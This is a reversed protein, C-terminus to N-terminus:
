CIIMPEATYEKDDYEVADTIDAEPLVEPVNERNPNKVRYERRVYSNGGNKKGFELVKQHKNQNSEEVPPVKDEIGTKAISLWSKEVQNKSEEHIAGPLYWGVSIPQYTNMGWIEHEIIEKILKAQESTAKRLNLLAVGQHTGRVRSSDPYEFELAQKPLNTYYAVTRSIAILVRQVEVLSLSPPLTIRLKLFPKDKIESPLDALHLPTINFENSLAGYLRDDVLAFTNDTETGNKIIVRFFPMLGNKLQCGMTHHNVIEHIITPALNSNIIYVGCHNTAM